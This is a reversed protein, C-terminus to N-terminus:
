RILQIWGKQTKIGEGAIEINMNYFYTGDPSDKGKWSGNWVEASSQDPTEFILNGYRNFIKINYQIQNSTLEEETGDPNTRILNIKLVDNLGDNNPSFQNYLIGVDVMNRTTITVMATSSSDDDDAAALSERPSSREIVATNSVTGTDTFTVRYSLEIEEGVELIEDIQWIGGNFSTNAPEVIDTITYGVGNDTIVDRVQINTVADQNSINKVKIFYFVELENDISSILGTVADLRETDIGLSVKKEIELNVGEPVEFIFEVMASNNDETVDMPFSSLLEATNIYTDFGELITVKVTLTASSSPDLEFISWEGTAVDYNGLSAEHEIYEFGSELLDGIIISKAKAATLNNITITFTVDEGILANPNDVEKKIELDIPTPDVCADAEINPSCPDLPDSGNLIEDGDSINDGDTDCLGISNDPICPNENAPDLQDVVGDMDSDIINSDLADIIGDEDTDIPNTNDGGVEVGDNIGDGDTDPNGPDTGLTAEVGDFLGDMDTDVDCDNISITITSSENVCPAQAGSTTYTFVYDGDLSGEFNLINNTPISFTSVPGSIFAWSGPDEGTILDDLDLITPGNNGDSCASANGNNQATGSSPQSQVTAVVEERATACNNLTALVYFSTTQNINPTTFSPGTGLISGGTAAAYWNITANATASATLVVTGPGCRENDATNTITPTENLVLDIQLTPSSCSNVADYFFGYYTGELTPTNNAQGPTLHANTNLPDASTSWTLVTGPPPTSNTFDNFSNTFADCVTASANANLVPATNGAVCPDCDAVSITFTATDNMCPAVATTTTYSYIYDGATRNRFQVRNNANPNLTEPGSVFAWAGPDVGTALLDDLDILTAGFNDNPNNCAAGNADAGATPSDNLDIVLPPTHDSICFTAGTGSSFVAHYTGSTAQTVAAGTLLQAETPQSVTSWSLTAGAPTPPSNAIYSNLDVSTIDCLSTANSNLSPAQVGAICDNDIITVTATDNNPDISFLGSNAGTIGTLTVTIVEDAEPITDDEADVEINRFQQNNPVTFRNNAGNVAGTFNFDFAPGVGPGPSNPANITYVLLITTGTANQKDLEVRFQGEAGGEFSEPQYTNPMSQDLSLKVVGVDNDLVDIKVEDAPGMIGNIVNTITIVITESVEVLQDDNITILTTIQNGPTVFTLDLSGSVLDHDVGADSTGTVTYEVTTALASNFDRSITFSATNLAGTQVEAGVNDTTTISVVQASLSSALLLFGFFLWGKLFCSLKNTFINQELKLKM